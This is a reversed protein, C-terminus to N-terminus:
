LFVNRVDKKVEKFPWKAMGMDTLKCTADHELLNLQHQRQHQRPLNRPRPLLPSVRYPRQM